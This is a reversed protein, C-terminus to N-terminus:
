YGARARVVADALQGTSSNGSRSGRPPGVEPLGLGALNLMADPRSRVSLHTSHTRRGLSERLPDRRPPQDEHTLIIEPILEVALASLSCNRPCDWSASRPKWRTKASHASKDQGIEMSTLKPKISM